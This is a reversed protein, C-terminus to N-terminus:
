AVGWGDVFVTVGYDVNWKIVVKTGVPMLPEGGGALAVFMKALLIAM